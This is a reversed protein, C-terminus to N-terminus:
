EIGLSLFQCEAEEREREKERERQTVGVRENKWKEQKKFLLRRFNDKIQNHKINYIIL